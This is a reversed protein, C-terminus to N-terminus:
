ASSARPPADQKRVLSFALGMVLLATQTVNIITSIHTGAGHIGYQALVLKRGVQELLLLAYLLPIQRPLKWLTFAGVVVLLLQNYGWLAFFATVAGAADHGYSALPIGDATAAVYAARFMINGGMLMKGTLLLVLIAVSLRRAWITLPTSSRM